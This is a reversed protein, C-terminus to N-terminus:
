IIETVKAAGTASTWIGRLQGTYGFPLEWYGNPSIVLTRNAASAANTGVSLSLSASSDNYVIVGRRATNAALILTDTIAATVSTPGSGTVSAPPVEVIPLPSAASADNAVGNAGWTLKVRQYHVGGIDDSAVPLATGGTAPQVLVDNDAM